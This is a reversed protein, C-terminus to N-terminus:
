ETQRAGTFGTPYDPLSTEQSFNEEEPRGKKLKHNLPEKSKYCKRENSSDMEEHM